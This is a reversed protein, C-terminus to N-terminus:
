LISPKQRRMIVYLIITILPVLIYLDFLLGVGSLKYQHTKLMLSLYRAAIGWNFVTNMIITALWFKGRFFLCLVGLVGIGLYAMGLQYQFLNTSLNSVVSAYFVHLVYTNLSSLGIGLLFYLLFIESVYYLTRTKKTFALHLTALVIMLGYLLIFFM